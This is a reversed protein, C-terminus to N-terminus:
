KAAEERFWKQREEMSKFRRDDVSGKLVSYNSRCFNHRSERDKMREQRSNLRISFLDKEKDDEFRVTSQTPRM